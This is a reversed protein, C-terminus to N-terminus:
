SPEEQPVPEFGTNGGLRPLGDEVSVWHVRDDFWCHLDPERDIAADMNALVIEVREPHRTSEFFLTSGCRRCFSRTAHESSAFHTLAEEGAEVRFRERLVGFWTVYGAGHSRRCM